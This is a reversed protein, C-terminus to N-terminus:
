RNQLAQTKRMVEVLRYRYRFADQPPEADGYYLDEREIKLRYVYGDEYDFGEIENYFLEGNVVLCKMTPTGECDELQSGVTVLLEVREGSQDCAGFLFITALVVMTALLALGACHRRSWGTRPRQRFLLPIRM